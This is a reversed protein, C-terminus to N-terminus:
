AQGGRRRGGRAREERTELRGVRDGDIRVFPKVQRLGATDDEDPVAFRELGPEEVRRAVYEVLLALDVRDIPRELVRTREPRQLQPEGEADVAGLGKAVGDLPVERERPKEGRLDASVVVELKEQLRLQRDEEEPVPRRRD